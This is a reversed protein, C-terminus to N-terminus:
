IPGTIGFIVGSCRMASLKVRQRTNEIFRFFYLIRREWTCLKKQFIELEDFSLFSFYLIDLVQEHSTCPRCEKTSVILKCTSNKKTHNVLSMVNQPISYSFGKSLLLLFFIGVLVVSFRFFLFLFICIKSSYIYITKM